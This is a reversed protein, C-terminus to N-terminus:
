NDTVEIDGLYMEQARLLDGLGYYVHYKGNKLQDLQPVHSIRVLQGAEAKDLNDKFGVWIYDVYSLKEDPNDVSEFVWFGTKDLFAGEEKMVLLNIPVPSKKSIMSPLNEVLASIRATTGKVALQYSPTFNIRPDIDIYESNDLNEGEVFASVKGCSYIHKYRGTAIMKRLSNKNFTWDTSELPGVAKTEFFDAIVLNADTYRAPFLANVLRMSAHAGLYDPGTYIEPNKNNIITVMRNLCEVDNSPVKTERTQGVIYDFKDANEEEMAFVKSLIKNQILSKGSVYIPNKTREAFNITLLLVVISFVTVSNKLIFNNKSSLRKSFFGLLYVYSIFLASIVFAIRHNSIDFIADKSFLVIALDPSSVLWIPTFIVVYGFPGFLNNLSEIKDPTFIVKLVLVPNKVTNVLMEGYSNGLYAYRKFFFNDGGSIEENVEEIGSEKVFTTISQARLNAYHPIVIFFAFIFYALCIVFTQKALRKNKFYLFISSLALIAGVEEKGALMLVILTWYIVLQRKKAGLLFNNKELYWVAWIFLPAVFSIGHFGTWVLTFGIAPYLLYTMAVIISAFINNTKSRVLWYLPFIASIVMMQQALVLIMPHAYFWYIPAFIVLIPDVHSMGWRPMNTGFQDTVEMFHGRSTNWVIQSMNGLDFKGYEFNIYRKYALAFSYILAAVSM